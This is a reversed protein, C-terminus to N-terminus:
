FTLSGTKMDIHTAEIHITSDQTPARYIHKDNYPNNDGQRNGVTRRWFLAKNKRTQYDLYKSLAFGNGDKEIAYLQGNQYKYLENGVALGWANPVLQKTSDSTLQYLNVEGTQRNVGVYFMPIAPANDKFQEFSTYIGTPYLVIM